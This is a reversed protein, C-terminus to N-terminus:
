NGIGPLSAPDLTYLNVKEIRGELALIGAVEDGLPLAIMEWQDVPGMEEPARLIQPPKAPNVEVDFRNLGLSLGRGCVKMFAEKSSWCRYFARATQESDLTFLAEVENPSFYRRALKELELRERHGEIDVGVSQDLSIAIVGLAATNSVNFRIGCASPDLSPKGFEGYAFRIDRPEQSCYRGLLHRLLARGTTFRLQHEKRLFRDAREIEDPSLVKRFTQEVEVSPELNMKWVDIEGPEPLRVIRSAGWKGPM